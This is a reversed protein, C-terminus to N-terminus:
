SIFYQRNAVDPPRIIQDYDPHEVCDVCAHHIFFLYIDQLWPVLDLSPCVLVFNM